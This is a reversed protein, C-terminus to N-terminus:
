LEPPLVPSLPRDYLRELEHEILTIADGPLGSVRRRFGNTLRDFNPNSLNADAAGATVTEGAAGESFGLGELLALYDEDRASRRVLRIVDVGSGVAIRARIVHRGADLPLTTVEAWSFDEAAEASAVRLSYRRDVSWIQPKTGHVRAVVSFLGPEELDVPYAVEAPGGGATAWSGQSAAAALRRNTRRAGRSDRAYREGEITFSKGDAPLRGELGFAQVMTRAKAGFSLPQGPRWGKAPSICLPRFAALEVGEVRSRHPLWAEVEHPGEGLALLTTAMEEGLHTLDLDGLDQRDVAWRGRGSGRVRLSYLATAPVPLVMRVPHERQPIDDGQVAVEFPPRSPVRRGEARIAREARDPCLLSFVDAADHDVPLVPALELASILRAAWEEQTVVRRSPAPELAATSPTGLAGDRALGPAALGWVVAALLVAVIRRNGRIWRAM